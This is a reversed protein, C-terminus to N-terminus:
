QKYRTNAESVRGNLLIPNLLSEVFTGFNAFRKRSFPKALLRHNAIKMLRM